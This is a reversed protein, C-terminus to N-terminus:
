VKGFKDVGIVCQWGFSFTIFIRLNKATNSNDVAATANAASKAGSAKTFAVASSTMAMTLCSLSMWDPLVVLTTSSTCALTNGWKSKVRM